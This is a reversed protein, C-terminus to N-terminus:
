EDVTGREISAVTGAYVNGAPVPDHDGSTATKAFWVAGVDADVIVVSGGDVDRCKYRHPPLRPDQGSVVGFRKTGANPHRGADFTFEIVDGPTARDSPEDICDSPDVGSM